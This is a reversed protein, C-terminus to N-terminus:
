SARRQRGRLYERIVDSGIEESPSLFVRGGTVRTLRDMFSMLGESHELMFVNISIGSRALRMAERLTKEITTRVPPWNFIAHEGELHTTPEGDTVMIVQKVGRPDEALLRRALIFAHQMNTGHVQEWGASALDAPQMSRAYDSFGVLYLSDQPYKGRILAELALAMRKAPVWHGRLPMSFSLDLLLATATRPRTESELVEFDDPRLRPARGPGSRLVANYVTRQVSIPDETGFHWPRSQGTPESQEGRSRHTPERRILDMLRTLSREGLLRAGRATLELRGRRRHLVGARELAQEIAKLKKLDRVADDGLARRLKDEDIDELMAGPYDGALTQELEEYESTREIADVVSSMPLPEEGWAPVAEDWPLQPMLERLNSALQDMQFALDLDDLVAAALDALERRQDPTLSALLRSMAAMRRALVDLLEDLNKPNEPFLDGYRQMFGDFDYPEGRSRAALMANLDAVMDKLRALDEPELGRLSGALNKFYANLVERRLDEVLRDFQAKAEESRFPYSMLERITGAPHHPLADLMAEAVRADDDTARALEAREMWLIENLRNAIEKVPASLDTEAAMQERRDRLRRILDDLGATRGGIGQRYLRRLAWDAGAGSLVDESIADLFEATDIGDGFPNQTDDWRSYRSRM